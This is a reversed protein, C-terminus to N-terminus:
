LKDIEPKLKSYINGVTRADMGLAKAVAKKVDAPKMGREINQKVIWAVDYDDPMRGDALPKRDKTKGKPRGAFKPFVDKPDEGAGLREFWAAIIEAEDHDLCRTKVRQAVIRYAKRSLEEDHQELLLKILSM